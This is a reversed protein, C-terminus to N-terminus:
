QSPSPYKEPPLIGGSASTNPSKQLFPFLFHLVELLKCCFEDSGEDEYEAAAARSDREAAVSRLAVRSVDSRRKGETKRDNGDGVADSADAASMDVRGNREGYEDVAADVRDLEGDVDRALDDASEGSGGAEHSEDALIGSESAVREIVAVDRKGEPDFGDERRDEDECHEAGSGRVSRARAKRDRAGEREDVEYADMESSGADVRRTREGRHEKRALGVSKPYEDDGREDAARHSAEDPLPKCRLRFSIESFIHYFLPKM